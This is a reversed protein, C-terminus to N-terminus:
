TADLVTCYVTYQVILIEELIDCFLQTLMLVVNMEATDNFRVFVVCNQKYIKLPIVHLTM